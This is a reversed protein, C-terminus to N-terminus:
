DLEVRLQTSRATWAVGIVSQSSMFLDAAQIRRPQGSWVPTIWQDSQLHASSEVTRVTAVRANPLLHLAASALTALRNAARALHPAVVKAAQHLVFTCGNSIMRPVTVTNSVLSRMCRTTGTQLTSTTNGVQSVGHLLPKAVLMKQHTWREASQRLAAAAAAQIAPPQVQSSELTGGALAGGQLLPTRSKAVVTQGIHFTHADMQTQAVCSAIIQAKREPGKIWTPIIISDVQMASISKFHQRMVTPRQKSFRQLTSM